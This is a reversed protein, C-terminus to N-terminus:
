CVDAYSIYRRYNDHDLLLVNVRANGEIAHVVYQMWRWTRTGTWTSRWGADADTLMRCCEDAYTLM